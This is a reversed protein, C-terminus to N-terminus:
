KKYIVFNGWIKQNGKFYNKKKGQDPDTNYLFDTDPDTNYFFDPGPDKFFTYPDSVSDKLLDSITCLLQISWSSM